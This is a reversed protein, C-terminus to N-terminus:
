VAESILNNANSEKPVLLSRDVFPESPMEYPIDKM